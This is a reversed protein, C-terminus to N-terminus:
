YRAVYIWKGNQKKILLAMNYGTATGYEFGTQYDIVIIGNQKKEDFCVRSFYFITYSDQPDLEEKFREFQRYPRILKILSKDFERYKLNKFRKSNIISDYIASDITGHYSNKFMWENDEKIQSIPILADSLYVKLDLTDINPKEHAKYEGFYGPPPPPPPPNLIVNLNNRKLYDNAIDEIAKNEEREYSANCSFLFIGIILLFTLKM